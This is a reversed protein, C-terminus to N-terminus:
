EDIGGLDQEDIQGRWNRLTQRARSLRSRVTGIPLGLIDAVEQYTRDGAVYLLVVSAEETRLAMLVDRLAPISEAADVRSAVDNEFGSESNDGTAARQYARYQRAAKRLHDQILNSAIGYLWPRASEYSSDFRRRDKFARVFVEGAIDEARHRDLAASAFGFIAPYHVAFIEAFLDPDDLSRHILEGDTFEKAM